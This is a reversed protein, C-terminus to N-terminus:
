WMLSLPFIFLTYLSYSQTYPVSQTHKRLESSSIFGLQRCIVIADNEGWESVEILGWINSYCVEVTGDSDSLGGTLRIDGNSCDLFYHSSSHIYTLNYCQNERVIRVCSGQLVLELAPFTCINHNPANHSAIRWDMVLCLVGSLPVM